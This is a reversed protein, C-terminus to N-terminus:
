NLEHLADLHHVKMLEQMEIAALLARQQDDEIAEPIGFTALFGDGYYRDVKGGYKKIVQALRELVTRIAHYIIEPDIDEAARTYNTLDAFLVTVLRRSSRDEVIKVARLNEPPSVDVAEGCFGCFRYDQPIENGCSPCIKPM